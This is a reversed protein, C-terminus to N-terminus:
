LWRCAWICNETRAAEWGYKSSDSAEPPQLILRMSLTFKTHLGQKECRM